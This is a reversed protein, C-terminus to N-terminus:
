TRSAGCFLVKYAPPCAKSIHFAGISFPAKAIEDRDGLLAAQRERSLFPQVRRLRGKRWIRSRSYSTPTWNILRLTCPMQENALLRRNDVRDARVKGLEPDHRWDSAVADLSLQFDNGIDLVRPEGFDCACANGSQPGLQQRDFGLYQCEISADHGPM